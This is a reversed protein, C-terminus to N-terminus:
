NGVERVEFVIWQRNDMWDVASIVEFVRNGYVIRWADADITPLLAPQYRVHVEHTLVTDYAMARLKEKGGIPRIDAFVEAISQYDNTKQGYADVSSQPATITVRRRLKGSQM